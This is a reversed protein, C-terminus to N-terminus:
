KLLQFVMLLLYIGAIFSFFVLSVEENVIAGM